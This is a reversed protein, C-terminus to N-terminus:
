ASTEVQAFLPVSVIEVLVTWTTVGVVTAIWFEVGAQAVPLKAIKVIAGLVIGVTSIVIIKFRLELLRRDEVDGYRPSYGRRRRPPLHAM